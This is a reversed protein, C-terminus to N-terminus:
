YLYKFLIWKNYLYSRGMTVIMHKVNTYSADAQNITLNLVAVHWLWQFQNLSPFKWWLIFIKIKLLIIPIDTDYADNWSGPNNTSSSYMLANNEENFVGGNNPENFEIQIILHNM